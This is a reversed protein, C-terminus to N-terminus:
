MKMIWKMVVELVDSNRWCELEEKLFSFCLKAIEMSTFFFEKMQLFEFDNKKKAVHTTLSM